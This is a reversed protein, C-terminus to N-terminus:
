ISYDSQHKSVAHVIPFDNPVIRRLWTVFLGGVLSLAIIITSPVRILCGTWVALSSVPILFINFGEVYGDPLEVHSALFYVNKKEHSLIPYDDCLHFIRGPGSPFGHSSVPFFPIYICIYITYICLHTYLLRTYIPLSCCLGVPICGIRTVWNKPPNFYLCHCCQQTCWTIQGMGM